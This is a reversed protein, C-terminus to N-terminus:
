VKKPIYKVGAIQYYQLSIRELDEYLGEDLVTRALEFGIAKLKLMDETCLMPIPAPPQHLKRERESQAKPRAVPKATGPISSQAPTPRAAVAAKLVKVGEEAGHEKVAHLLAGPTVEGASLMEKAETPTNALEIAETVYRQPKCVRKAIEVIPHGWKLLKRYELGCEWQTLALGANSTLNEVIFETEDGDIRECPIKVDHGKARLNLCATLRCHGTVLTKVGTKKDYRVRIPIRVGDALISEELTAIHEITAPSTMDRPNWGDVIEIERPDYYATEHRYPTSGDARDFRERPTPM